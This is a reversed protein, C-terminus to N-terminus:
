GEIGWRGVERMAGEGGRMVEESGVLEGVMEWPDRGGGHRLVTEKLREGAERDLPSSSPSSSFQSSFVKAAIARDFLYSYYTAGYGFLHGFQTQWATGPAYPVVHYKKQVDELTTTSDFKGDSALPAHYAQDLAAMMVQSSTELASFKNRENLVASFVEAPLPHGTRHHKASLAVVAPSSVFHEMLISPFEVFDTACRTGAVNHYATRGIM